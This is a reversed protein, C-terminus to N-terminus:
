SVQRTFYVQVFFVRLFFKQLFAALLFVGAFSIKLKRARFGNLAVVLLDVKEYFCSHLKRIFFFFIMECTLGVLPFKFFM